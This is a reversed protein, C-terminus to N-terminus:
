APQLQTPRQAPIVVYPDAGKYLHKYESKKDCFIAKGRVATAAAGHCGAKQDKVCNPGQTSGTSTDMCMHHNPCCFLNAACQSTSQCPASCGTMISDRYVNARRGCNPLIMSSVCSIYVCRM